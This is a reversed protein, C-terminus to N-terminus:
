FIGRIIFALLFSPLCENTFLRFSPPSESSKPCLLHSSSITMTLKPPPPHYINSQASQLYFLSPTSIVRPPSYVNPPPPLQSPDYHPSLLFYLFCDSRIFLSKQTKKRCLCSLFHPFSFNFLTWHAKKRAKKTQFINSFINPFCFFFRKHQVPQTPLFIKLPINQKGLVLFVSYSFM